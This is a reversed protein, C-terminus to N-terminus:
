PPAAGDGSREAGLTSLLVGLEKLADGLLEIHEPFRYRMRQRVLPWRDDDQHIAPVSENAVQKLSRRILMGFVDFQHSVLM